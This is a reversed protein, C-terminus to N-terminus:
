LSVVAGSEVNPNVGRCARRFRRPLKERELVFQGAGGRQVLHLKRDVEVLPRGARQVPVPVCPRHHDVVHEAVDRPQRAPLAQGGSADRSTAHFRSIYDAGGLVFLLLDAIVLAAM